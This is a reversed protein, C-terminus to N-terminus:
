RDVSDESDNFEKQVDRVLAPILPWYKLASFLIDVHFVPKLSMRFFSEFEEWIIDQDKRSRLKQWYQFLPHWLSPRGACLRCRKCFIEWFQIQTKGCMSFYMNHLYLLHYMAESLVPISFIRVTTTGNSNLGCDFRLFGKRDWAGRNSWTNSPEGFVGSQGWQRTCRQEYMGILTPSHRPFRHLGARCMENRHIHWAHIPVIFSLVGVTKSERGTTEM